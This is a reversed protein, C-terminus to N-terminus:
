YELNDKIDVTCHNEVQSILVKELHNNYCSLLFLYLLQSFLKVM